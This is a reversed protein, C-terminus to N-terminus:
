PWLKPLYYAREYEAGDYLCHMLRGDRQAEQRRSGGLFDLEIM